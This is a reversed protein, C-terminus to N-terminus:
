NRGIKTKFSTGQTEKRKCFQNIVRLISWCPELMSTLSEIHQEALIETPVMLAGQFGASVSAFLSIAAVVTKGSGVDGQLLRNMRYPSKLDTLIEQVVRKQANTLPFPLNLIFDDVKEKSLIKHFAKSNEREIKRLTQMKLQFLLFEEYVFRRRAQKLEEQNTPFHLARFAERRNLLKYKRQLSRSDNGRALHGFQSFALHICRRIGKITINGKIAYVPEFDNNTSAPGIKLENATITQRHGDWKGSVTVMENM